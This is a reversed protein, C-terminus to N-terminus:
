LVLVAIANRILTLGTAAITEVVPAIAARNQAEVSVVDGELVDSVRGAPSSRQRLIVSSGSLPVGWPKMAQTVPRVSPSVISQRCAQAQTISDEAALDPQPTM